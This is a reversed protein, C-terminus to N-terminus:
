IVCVVDEPAMVLCTMPLVTTPGATTWGWTKILVTYNNNSLNNIAHGKDAHIYNLSTLLLLACAVHATITFASQHMDLTMLDFARPIRTHSHYQLATEAHLDNDNGLGSAITEGVDVEFM